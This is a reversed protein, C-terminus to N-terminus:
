ISREEGCALISEAKKQVESWKSQLTSIKLSNNFLLLKNLPELIKKLVKQKLNNGWEWIREAKYGMATKVKEVM